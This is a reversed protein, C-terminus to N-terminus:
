VDWGSGLRVQKSVFIRGNEKVLHLDTNTLTGLIQQLNESPKSQPDKILFPVMEDVSDRVRDSEIIYGLYNLDIDLYKKVLNVLNDGALLDKKNRVRNVIIGPKFAKIIADVEETQASDIKDINERLIDVTCTEVDAASPHSHDVLRQLAPLDKLHQSIRRFLAARIFSFTKMVSTMEPTSMVISQNHINFFDLVNFSTGPGLDLFVTDAKLTRIFSIIKQVRDADLNASGPNDGASSVFKLNSIGTEILLSEPKLSHNTFFDQFGYPPHSIGLLAHLNSAGFDGDMLVVKQGSLAMGVALNTCVISKGIGGKGGGLTIINTSSAM